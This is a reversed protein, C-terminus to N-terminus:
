FARASLHSNKKWSPSFFIVRQKVTMGKISNKKQSLLGANFCLLNEGAANHFSHLNQLSFDTLLFCSLFPPPVTNVLLCLLLGRFFLTLPSIVSCLLVGACGQTACHLLPVLM